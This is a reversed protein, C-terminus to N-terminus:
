YTQRPKLPKRPMGSSHLIMVVCNPDDFSAPLDASDDKQAGESFNSPPFLDEFCPMQHINLPETMSKSSLHEQAAQALSQMTPDESVLLHTCETRKLMDAVGAPGNRPSILFFTHSARSIGMSTCFFTITDAIYSYEGAFYTPPVDGSMALVGIVTRRSPDSTMAVRSRVYRAARRIGLNAEAYDIINLSAGDHYTFLPYHPNKAANWEYLEPLAKFHDADLLTRPSQWAPRHYDVSEVPYPM